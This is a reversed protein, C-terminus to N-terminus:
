NASPQKIKQSLQGLSETLTGSSSQPLTQILGELFSLARGNQFFSFNYEAMEKLIKLWSEPGKVHNNVLDKSSLRLPEKGSERPVGVYCMVKLFMEQTIPYSGLKPLVSMPTQLMIEMGEVAPFKSLIYIKGDITTEQPEILLGFATM